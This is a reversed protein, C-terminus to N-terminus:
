DNIRDHMEEDRFYVEEKTAGAEDEDSRMGVM